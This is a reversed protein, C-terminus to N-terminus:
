KVAKGILLEVFSRLHKTMARNRRLIVSTPRFINKNSFPISKLTGNALENQITTEPMIAVGSNIEVVRKIMEVNDFEMVPKVAINYRILLQDIWNRTPLNRSFAIFPQYQVMDIDIQSKKSISNQPSAVLVLPEDAFKYSQIQPGGSAMAVLGVDIKGLLLSEYIRDNSLYEVNLNVDPYLSIFGKIYPQLSHMGISYIAAIAIRTRDSNKLDALAAQFNEHRSIMDRCTNYYLQGAPTLGFSKRHRNILQCNYSRELQALQQSVASQSIMNKDAAASFSGLQALDCFIRLAEIQM